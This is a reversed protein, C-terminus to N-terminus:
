SAVVREGLEEVVNLVGSERRIMGEGGPIQPPETANNSSPQDVLSSPHSSMTSNWRAHNLERRECPEPERRFHDHERHAPVQAETQRITIEFFEEGFAADGNIM